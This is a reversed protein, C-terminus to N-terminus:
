KIEKVKPTSRALLSRIFDASTAYQVYDLSYSLRLLTERDEETLWPAAYLPFVTGGHMSRWEDADRKLFYLYMHKWPSPNGVVVQPSESKTMVGWAVPEADTIKYDDLEKKVQEYKESLIKVSDATMGSKIDGFGLRYMEQHTWDSPRNDRAYSEILTSMNTFQQRIAQYIKTATGIPDNGDIDIGPMINALIKFAQIWGDRKDSASPKCNVGWMESELLAELEAVRAESKELTMQKMARSADATYYLSKWIEADITATDREGTLKEIQSDIEDYECHLELKDIVRVSEGDNLVMTSWDWTTPYGQTNEDYTVDLVVRETRLSLNTPTANKEVSSQEESPVIKWENWNTVWIPERHGVTNIQESGVSTRYELKGDKNYRLEIM